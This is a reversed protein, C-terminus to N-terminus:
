ESVGHLLTRRSFSIILWNTLFNSVKLPVRLNMVINVLARWQGRDQLLWDVIELTIERLDNTINDDWRRRTRWSLTKDEPKGVLISYANTRGGVRVVHEEWRM